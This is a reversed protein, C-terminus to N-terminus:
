FCHLMEIRKLFQAVLFESQASVKGITDAFINIIVLIILITLTAIIPVIVGTPFKHKRLFTMLPQYMIVVLTAFVLPLLLSSLINLLYFTLIFLFVLLINRISRLM